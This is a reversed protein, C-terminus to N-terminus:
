KLRKELDVVATLQLILTSNIIFIILILNM